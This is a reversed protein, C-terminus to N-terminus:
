DDWLSAKTRLPRALALIARAASANLGVADRTVLPRALACIRLSPAAQPGSRHQAEYGRRGQAFHKPKQM